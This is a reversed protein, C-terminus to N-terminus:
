APSPPSGPETLPASRCVLVWDEPSDTVMAHRVGLGPGVIVVEHGLFHRVVDGPRLSDIRGPDLNWESPNSVSSARVAHVGRGTNQLVTYSRGSPRHRVVDGNSLTLAEEPKV